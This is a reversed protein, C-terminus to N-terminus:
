SGTPGKTHREKVDEVIAKYKANQTLFILDPKDQRIMPKIPQFLFLM